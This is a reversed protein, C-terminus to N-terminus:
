STPARAPHSSLVKGAQRNHFDIMQKIADGLLLCADGLQQYEPTQLDQATLKIGQVAKASLLSILSAAEDLQYERMFAMFLRRIEAEDPTLPQRPSYAYAARSAELLQDAEHETIERVDRLHTFAPDADPPFPPLSAARCTRSHVIFDIGRHCFEWGGDTMANLHERRRSSCLLEYSQVPIAVYQTALLTTDTSKLKNLFGFM